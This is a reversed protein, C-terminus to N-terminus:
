IEWKPNTYGLQKVVDSEDLLKEINPPLDLKDISNMNKFDQNMQWIRYEAGKFGREPETEFYQKGNMVYTQTKEDFNNIPFELGISNTIDWLAKYNDVFMDEYRITYVGDYGKEKSDLWKTAAEIYADFTHKPGSYPNAARKGLFSSLVYYPNRIISIIDTNNFIPIDNKAAYGNVGRFEQHLLPHKWVYFKYGNNIAHPVHKPYVDEIKQDWTDKAEGIKARLISTGCHPFGTILIKKM